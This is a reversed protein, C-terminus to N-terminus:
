SSLESNIIDIDFGSPAPTNPLNVEKFEAALRTLENQLTEQSSQANALDKDAESVLSDVQRVFDGADGVM